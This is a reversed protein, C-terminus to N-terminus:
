DEITRLEQQPDVVFEYGDDTILVMEEQGIYGYETEVGLEATYIEGTRVERRPQDGYREWLPGM